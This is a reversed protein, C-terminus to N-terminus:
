EAANLGPARYPPFYDAGPDAGTAACLASFAAPDYVQRVSVMPVERAGFRSKMQHLGDGRAGYGGINFAKVGERALCEATQWVMWAQLGRGEPVSALLLAEVQAGKCLCMLVCRVEGQDEAGFYRVLPSASWASLVSPSFAPRTGLRELTGAHLALFAAALRAQDQVLVATRGAGRLSSRMKRGVADQFRWHPLDFVFMVNHALMRDAPSAPLGANAAALQLYGAVWGQARAYDAWVRLPGAGGPRLLAGSLGPLTAIDTHGRFERRLFPLLMEEGGDRVHALAPEVGMEALGAAFDWSQGPLGWRTAAEWRARDKLGILTVEGTM